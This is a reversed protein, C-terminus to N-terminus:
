ICSLLQLIKQCIPRFYNSQDVHGISSLHNNSLASFSLFNVNNYSQRRKRKNYALKGREYSHSALQQRGAILGIFGPWPWCRRTLHRRKTKGLLVIFGPWSWGRRTVLKGQKYIHVSCHSEARGLLFLSLTRPASVAKFVPAGEICIFGPLNLM